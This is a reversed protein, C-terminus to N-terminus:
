AAVAKRRKVSRRLVLGSAVLGVGVVTTPVVVAGTKALSGDGKSGGSGSTGSSGTGDEGDDADDGTGGAAAITIVLSLVLPRGDAGIGTAVLTRRGAGIGAPITLTASAVGQADAIATGLVVGDITFTVLTGPRFGRATATFSQGAVLTDDSVTLGPPAPCTPTGQGIPYCAQAAAPGAALALIGIGVAFAVALRHFWGHATPANAM